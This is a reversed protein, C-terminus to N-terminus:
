SVGDTEPIEPAVFCGGVSKVLSESAIDRALWPFSSGAPSGSVFADDFSVCWSLSFPLGSFEDNDEVSEPLLGCMLGALRASAEAVSRDRVVGVPLPLRPAVLEPFAGLGEKRELSM